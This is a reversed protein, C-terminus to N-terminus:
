NHNMLHNGRGSTLSPVRILTVDTGGAGGDKESQAPGNGGAYGGSACLVTVTHGCRVLQDALAELMVGTPAFDPPSYHNLLLIRM